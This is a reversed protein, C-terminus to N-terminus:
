APTEIAYADGRGKLDPRHGFPCPALGANIEQPLIWTKFWFTREACGSFKCQAVTSGKDGFLWANVSAAGQQRRPEAKQRFSKREVSPEISRM